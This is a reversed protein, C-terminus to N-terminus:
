NQVKGTKNEEAKVLMIANMKTIGEEEIEKYSPLDESLRKQWAEVKPFKSSDVELIAFISSVIPLISIDAVTLHEGAVYKSQTLFIELFELGQEVAAIRPTKRYDSEKGDLFDRIVGYYRAFLTGNNYHLRQDILGRLKLDDNPCLTKSYKSGLYACIAHSEWIVYDGDVLTPVCHQPNMKLFEPTLHEGANTNTPRLVFQCSM